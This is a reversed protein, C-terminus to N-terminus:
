LIVEGASNIRVSTIMGTSGTQQLVIYYYEQEPYQQYDASKISFNEYAEGRLVAKVAEPLNAPLVPWETYNWAMTRDFYVQKVVNGDLLNAIYSGNSLKGAETVFGKNYNLTIFKRMEGPTDEEDFDEAVDVHRFAEEDTWIAIEQEGKKLEVEYWVPYNRREIVEPQNEPIWSAPPYNISSNIYDKVVVPLNTYTTSYKTQLWVATSTYWVEYDITHQEFEAKQFYGAKEWEVSSANPFKEWFAAEVAQSPVKDGEGQHSKDDSCALVVFMLFVLFIFGNTKM